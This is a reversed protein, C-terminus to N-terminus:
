PFDGNKMPFDVIFPWKWYSNQCLWLTIMGAVGLLGDLLGVYFAGRSEGVSRGRGPAHPRGPLLGECSELPGCHHSVRLPVQLQASNITPIVQIRISMHWEELSKPIISNNFQNRLHIQVIDNRSQAQIAHTSSAHDSTIEARGPALLRQGDSRGLGLWIWGTMSRTLIHGLQGTTIEGVYTPYWPIHISYSHIIWPSTMSYTQPSAIPCHHSIGL